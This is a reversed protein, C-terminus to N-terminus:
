WLSLSYFALYYYDHKFVSTTKSKNVLFHSFYFHRMLFKEGCMFVKTKEWPETFTALVYYLIGGESILKEIIGRKNRM